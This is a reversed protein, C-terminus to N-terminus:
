NGLKILENMTTKVQKHCLWVTSSTYPKITRRVKLFHMFKGKKNLQKWTLVEFFTPLTEAGLNIGLAEIVEQHKSLLTKITVHTAFDVLQVKSVSLTNNFYKYQAKM